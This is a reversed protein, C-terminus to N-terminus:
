RPSGGGSSRGTDGSCRGEDPAEDDLELEDLEDSVPLPLHFPELSAASTSFAMERQPRREDLASPELELEDDDLEDEEEDEAM